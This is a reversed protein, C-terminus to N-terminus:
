NSRSHLLNWHFRFCLWVFLFGNLSKLSKRQRWALVGGVRYTRGSTRWSPQTEMTCGDTATNCLWGAVSYWACRLWWEICGDVSWWSLWAARSARVIQILRIGHGMVTVINWDRQAEPPMRLRCLSWHMVFSALCEFMTHRVSTPPGSEIRHCHMLGLWMLRTRFCLPFYRFIVLM